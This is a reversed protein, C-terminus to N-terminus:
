LIDALAQTDLVNDAVYAQDVHYYNGDYDKVEAMGTPNIVYTGPELNGSKSSLRDRKESHHHTCGKITPLNPNPGGLQAYDEATTEVEFLNGQADQFVHVYKDGVKELPILADMSLLKIDSLPSM